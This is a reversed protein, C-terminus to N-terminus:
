PTLIRVRSSVRTATRLLGVRRAFSEATLGYDGTIIVLRIGAGHLTQVAAAVEPRPPDMMALLGLFTLGREDSRAFLRGGTSAIAGRWPWYACRGARTTTTRRRSRAARPAIWRSCQGQMQVHTCLQLVERPAGKVFLVQGDVTRHVTSM